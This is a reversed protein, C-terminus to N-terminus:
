AAGALFVARQAEFAREFAPRAEGRTVYSAINPQEQLLASGGLRRLVTVMVVDAAGFAEELRERSALWRSLDDLKTRVQEDLMTLREAHWPREAELLLAMSREVIPPEVTSKAAFM